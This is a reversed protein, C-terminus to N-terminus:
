KIEERHYPKIVLWIYIAITIGAANSIADLIEGQRDSTLLMQSFEMLIGFFFPILAVLLLHRTDRFSNRHEFIIVAMLFFYLCFHGIKDIYSINIFGTPGFTQSGALSLYVIVLTTLITFKNKLIM